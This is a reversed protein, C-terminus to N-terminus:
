KPRTIRVSYGDLLAQYAKAERDATTAARWDNEVQQHVDALRVRKGPVAEELKVLQLGFGSTVPGAWTRLPLTPLTNAFDEGFDRAIGATSTAIKPPAVALSDGLGAPNAGGRLKALIGLARDTAAKDTGSVYVQDFRYAAGPAYKARHAELWQALVAESPIAGEAEQRALFEMKSRLRKRIVEDDTDLGMRLAERYLVEEKVYDRILWDLETPNPQRQWALEFNGALRRVGAEDVTITRSTPDPATGRWASFAFVLAGAILFHV